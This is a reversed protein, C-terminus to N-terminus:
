APYKIIVIGDGGPQGNFTDPTPTGRCGDGGGGGGGTFDVGQTGGVASNACEGGSGNGGGGPGGPGPGNDGGGGGGGGYLGTPGVAPTWTPRVPAPIEPAIAPAPFAPVALGVGGDSGQPAPHPRTPGPGGAGGGGGGTQPGNGPGGPNGFDGGAGGAGTTGWGGGGGSGSGPSSAGVNPSSSNGSGGGGGGDCVFPGAPHVLTTSTGPSGRGSTSPARAGGTGVTVPYSGPTLTIPGSRVGGAGGGGGGDVGGGGAGGGVVLYTAPSTGTTVEFTGPATFVHYRSGDGPEIGAATTSGGTAIMQGSTAFYVWGAAGTGDDSSYIQGADDTSNYIITGVATGVGANRTTETMSGLEVGLGSNINSGLKSM